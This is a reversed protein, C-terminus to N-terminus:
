NLIRMKKEDLYFRGEESGIWQNSTYKEINLKSKLSFLDLIVKGKDLPHFFASKKSVSEVTLVRSMYLRQVGYLVGNVITLLPALLSLLRSKRQKKIFSTHYGNPLLKEVWKNKLLFKAHANDREFLVKLQLIEHATYLNQKKKPFHMADESLFMNPCIKDKARKEGRKRKQGLSLLALSVILRTIWLTNKQTIFFLDIDDEQQSNNMSLSGSVGILRVFPIRSLVKAIVRAKVMKQISTESRVLRKEVIQERGLLYYLGQSEQVIYISDLIDLFEEDNVAIKVDCYKKLEVLTLPYDFIDFYTLTRIISERLNNEM